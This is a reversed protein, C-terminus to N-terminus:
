SRAILGRQTKHDDRVEWLVDAILANVGADKPYFRRVEVTGDPTEGAISVHGVQAESSAILILMHDRKEPSDLLTQEENYM